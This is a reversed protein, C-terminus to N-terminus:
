QVHKPDMWFFEWIHGDLDSFTRLFMFGYDQADRLESAGAKIATDVLKNVADKSDTSLAILVETSKHADV